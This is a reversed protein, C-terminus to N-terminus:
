SQRGHVLHAALMPYTSPAMLVARLFLLLKRQMVFFVLSVMTLYLM